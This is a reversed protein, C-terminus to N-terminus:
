YMYMYSMTKNKMDVAVAGAALEAPDPESSPDCGGVGRGPDGVSFLLNDDVPLISIIRSVTAKQMNQPTKHRQTASPDQHLPPSAKGQVSDCTLTISYYDGKVSHFYFFSM